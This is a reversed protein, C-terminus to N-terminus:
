QNQKNTRSSGKPRAASWLRYWSRVCMCVCVCLLVLTRAIKNWRLLCTGELEAVSVASQLQHLSISLSLVLSLSPPPHMPPLCFPLLSLSSLPHSFCVNPSHTCFAFQCYFTFSPPLHRIFSLAFSPALGQSQVRSQLVCSRKVAVRWLREQIMWGEPM